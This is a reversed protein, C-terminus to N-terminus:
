CSIMISRWFSKQWGKPAGIGSNGGRRRENTADIYVRGRVQKKDNRVGQDQVNGKSPRAMKPNGERERLRGGKAM